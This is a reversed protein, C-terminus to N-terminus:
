REAAQAISPTKVATWIAAVEAPPLPRHFMFGQAHRYGMRQLLQAQEPTGIGEAVLDLSLARAMQAVATAVAAQRAVTVIGEVFSRDLKLSTVPCTLLLGLSSAATGFDDLALGVGLERLKHLKDNTEGGDLVATEIMEIVLRDPPLGADALAAAVDDVFDPECLQRGSVNVSMKLPAIDGYARWWAAAQRCAQRLVWRGLPVILGTREAATIFDDPGIVGQGPPYWRVLAETGVVRGDTIDVIPQYMLRFERRQIAGRLRAGLEATEFLRAKMNATYRVYSGKGRDKAEYLAIDANRLLSAFDDTPGAIAGGISAHVLLLQGAVDVPLALGDLIRRALADAEAAPVNRLLVAFEDGGLRAVVDGVPVSATLRRAVSLLLGDGVTHGLTDNITKFDDLDIMLLAHPGSGLAAAVRDGFADRNLLMTLRDHAAAHRLQREHERLGDLATDLRHILRLNDQFALLQRTVVLATSIVAGAVVGWLRGNVGDPLITILAIFTASIALYPLGSFSRRPRSGPVIPDLRAQLQQLRPGAAVLVAPWLRLVFAGTSLTVGPGIPTVCVAVIQLFMAAVMIAAAPQTMPASGSLVLRVAAFLAVMAATAGVLVGVLDAPGAAPDVAFVWTLVAGGVLVTLMDLWFRVRQQTPQAAVPYRLMNVTVALLSIAFGITTAMGGGALEPRPDVFMSITHYGDTVTTGAAAVALTQWLRRAPTGFTATRSVRRSLVALAVDLPASAVWLAQIRLDTSGLGSLFFLCQVVGVGLLALLVPDRWALSSVGRKGGVGSPTQAAIPDRRV